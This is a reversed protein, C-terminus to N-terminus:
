MIKTEDRQLTVTGNTWGHMIEFSGKYPAQFKFITNNNLMLKDGVKYDHNIIKCNKRIDDKNM